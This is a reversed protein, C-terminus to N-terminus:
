EQRNWRRIYEQVQPTALDGYSGVYASPQWVRSVRARLLETSFGDAVVRQAENMLTVVLGAPAVGPHLWLAVHVHDPVFSVKRLAFRHERQLKVWHDAVAGAEAEGLVGRRGLTVLVLHFQLHTCAHDAHWWPEPERDPQWTRVFVPALPRQSYGHHDGQAELYAEVKGTTSGGATCAFYGRALLTTPDRLGLQERLWKSVRGKLKSACASLSESPQLSLLVRTETPRSDCEFVHIGLPQVLAHLAPQDLALLDAYPKRRHTRWHLYAHYAYAFHLEPLEYDRVQM